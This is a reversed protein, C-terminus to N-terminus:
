LVCSTHTCLFGTKCKLSLSLSNSLAVGHQQCPFIKISHYQISGSLTVYVTNGYSCGVFSGYMYEHAAKRKESNILVMCFWAFGISIWGIRICKRSQFCSILLPCRYPGVWFVKPMPSQILKTRREYLM